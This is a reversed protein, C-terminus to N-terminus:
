WVILLMSKMVYHLFPYPYLAEEGHLAMEGIGFIASNRVGDNEDQSVELFLPLLQPVFEGTRPGLPEM